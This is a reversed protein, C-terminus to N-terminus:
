SERDDEYNLLDFIHLIIMFVILSFASYGNLVIMLLDEQKESVTTIFSQLPIAFLLLECIVIILIKLLPGLFSGLENLRGNAKDLDNKEKSKALKDNMNKKKSNNRAILGELYNLHGFIEYLATLENKKTYM